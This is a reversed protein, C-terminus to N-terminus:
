TGETQPTTGETTCSESALFLAVLGLWAARHMRACTALDMGGVKGDDRRGTGRDEEGHRGVGGGLVAAELLGARGALLPAAPPRIEGLPLPARDALVVGRVA